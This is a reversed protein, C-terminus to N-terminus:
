SHMAPLAFASREPHVDRKGLKRLEGHQGLLTVVQGRPDDTSPQDFRGIM